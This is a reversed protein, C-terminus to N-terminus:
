IGPRGGGDLADSMHKAASVVVSVGRDFRNAPM